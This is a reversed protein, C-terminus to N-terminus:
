GPIGNPQWNVWGTPPRTFEVVTSTGDAPEVDTGRAWRYSLFNPEDVQEVVALHTGQEKWGFAAEGGPPVGLDGLGSRM